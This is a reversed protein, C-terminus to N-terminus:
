KEMRQDTLWFFNTATLIIKLSVEGCTELLFKPSVGLIQQKKDPLGDDTMM